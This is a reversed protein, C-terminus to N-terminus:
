TNQKKITGSRRKVTAIIMLDNFLFLVREKREKAQGNTAISVLEFWLFQRDPTVLDPAGEILSTMERLVAERQGNELAEREKCNLHLLIDHVLKLADQLPKQDPHNVDTHKILRSM